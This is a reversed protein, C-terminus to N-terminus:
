EAMGELRRVYTCQFSVETKAPSSMSHTMVILFMARVGCCFSRSAACAFCRDLNSGKCGIRSRWLFAVEDVAKVLGEIALNGESALTEM